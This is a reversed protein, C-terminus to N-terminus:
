VFTFMQVFPNMLKVEDAFVHVLVPRGFVPAGPAITAARQSSRMVGGPAIEYWVSPTAAFRRKTTKQFLTPWKPAVPVRSLKLTMRSSVVLLTVVEITEDPPPPESAVRPIWFAVPVTPIW